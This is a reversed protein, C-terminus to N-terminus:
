LEKIESTTEKKPKEKGEKPFYCAVGVGVFIVLIFVMILFKKM